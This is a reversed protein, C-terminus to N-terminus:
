NSQSWIHGCSCCEYKTTSKNRDPNINVGNKYVPQYYVCTSLSEGIKYYSDGCNPCKVSNIDNAVIHGSSIVLADSPGLVSAKEISISDSISGVSSICNDLCELVENKELTIYSNNLFDIIENVKEIVDMVEYSGNERKEIRNFKM